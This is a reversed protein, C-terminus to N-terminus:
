FIRRISGNITKSDTSYTYSLLYVKGAASPALATVAQSGIKRVIFSLLKVSGPEVFSFVLETYYSGNNALYEWATDGEKLSFLMDNGITDSLPYTLVIQCTGNWPMIKAPIKLCKRETDYFVDTELADGADVPINIAPAEIYVDEGTTEDVKWGEINLATKGIAADVLISPIKKIDKRYLVLHIETLNEYSDWITISFSDEPGSYIDFNEDNGFNVYERGDDKRLTEFYIGPDNETIIYSTGNNYVLNLEISVNNISTMWDLKPSSTYFPRGENDLVFDDKTLEVVLTKELYFPKNKVYDPQTNDNQNWDPQASEPINIAEWATPKGMDDVASIKVIQGVSAGSQILTDQKGALADGVAKADAAKGAKSLTTDLEVSTGGGTASIAKGDVLPIKGNVSLVKIM